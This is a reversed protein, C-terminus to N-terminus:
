GRESILALYLAMTYEEDGFNVNIPWSEAYLTAWQQAFIRRFVAIKSNKKLKQLDQVWKAQGILVLIPTRFYASPITKYTLNCRSRQM